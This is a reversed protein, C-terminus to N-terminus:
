RGDIPRDDAYYDEPRMVLRRLGKAVFVIFVFSAFGFLGYFGPWREFAYHAHDFAHGVWLMAVGVLFLLGCAGYVAWRARRNLRLSDRETEQHAHEQHAHDQHSQEHHEPALQSM